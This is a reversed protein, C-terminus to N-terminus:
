HLQGDIYLKEWSIYAKRGKSKAEKMIPVLSRRKELIEKPYQPSVGFDTGKLNPASKRVSEKDEYSEFKGLIPRTKRLDYRGIRQASEVKITEKADEIKMHDQVIELIKDRCKDNTEDRDEPVKYFMLNNQLDKVKMKMLTSQFVDERKKQQVQYGELKKVLTGIEKQKQKLTDSSNSDFTRSKEIEAVTTEMVTVRQELTDMKVTINNMSVQIKDLQGLKTDICDLRQLILSMTQDTSVVQQNPYLPPGNASPTCPTGPTGQFSPQQMNQFNNPSWQNMMQGMNQNMNQNMNYYSPHVQGINLMNQGNQVNTPSLYSPSVYNQAMIPRKAPTEKDNPSNKDKKRKNNGM